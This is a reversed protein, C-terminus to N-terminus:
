LSPISAEQKPWKWAHWVILALLVTEVTIYFLYLTSIKGVFLTGGLVAIFVIGLIINAWRNTKAKLILSLFVMASPLGVLLIASGLLFPQTIKVGSIEGAMFQELHGPEMFGLIDRYAFFFMLTAWLASLKLKVNIKVDELEASRKNTNM